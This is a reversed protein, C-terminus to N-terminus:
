RLLSGEARLRKHFYNHPDSQLVLVQWLSALFAVALDDNKGGQKGDLSTKWTVFSPDADRSSPVNHWAMRSMEDLLIDKTADLNGGILDRAFRLRDSEFIKTANEKWNKKESETTTVGYWTPNKKVNQLVVMRSDGFTRRLALATRNADDPFAGVEIAVFMVANRYRQDMMHCSFHREICKLTGDCDEPRESRERIDMGTVVFLGGADKAVTVVTANSNGGGNPDVQDCVRTGSVRTLACEVACRTHRLHRRVFSVTWQVQQQFLHACGMLERIRPVYPKFVLQETSNM